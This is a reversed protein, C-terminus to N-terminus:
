IHVEDALLWQGTYGVLQAPRDGVQVLLAQYSALHNRTIEYEYASAKWPKPFAKKEIKMVAPIDSPYLERLRYPPRPKLM